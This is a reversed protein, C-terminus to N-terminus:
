EQAKGEELLPCLFLARAELRREPSTKVHGSFRYYGERLEEGYLELTYDGEVGLASPIDRNYHQVELELYPLTLKGRCIFAIDGGYVRGGTVVVIGEGLSHQSSEFVVTYIGEKMM